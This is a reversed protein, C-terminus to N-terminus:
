IDNGTERLYCILRDYSAKLDVVPKWGLDCMKSNDLHLKVDAAYGFESESAPLEIKVNIQKQAFTEVIFNAMDIIKMHNEENSVNYSEGSKGKVLLFLIASIADSIYIYNGESQGTSHLIIDTKNLISKAFQAFIRNEDKSIGAGFTQALRASIVPLGYEVAYSKCLCECMRKSEPYCSRISELNLYGIDQEKVKRNLNPNGYIEMSSLYLFSSIKKKVGLDLLKLTGLISTKITYVPNQVMTKSATIAATHIIFDIDCDIDSLDDLILDKYIVTFHPNKLEEKYIENVKKENRALAILRINLNHANNCFLLYKILMSGIFGTAGSILFVKNKFFDFETFTNSVFEFDSKLVKSQMMNEKKTKLDM